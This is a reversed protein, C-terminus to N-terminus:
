ADDPRPTLVAHMTWTTTGRRVDLEIVAGTSRARVAMILNAMSLVAKGDIGLVQDGVDLGAVSAPSDGFVKDIVAGGPIQLAGAVSAPLDHGLVGLWAPVVHGTAMLQVAVQRAWDVPTVYEGGKDAGSLVGVVAGDRDLVPSGAVAAPGDTAIQLLGDLGTFSRDLGAILGHAVSADTPAYGIVPDGVKLNLATGLPAPTYGGGDLKLVALRSGADTAVVHAAVPHAAGVVASFSKATGVVDTTTLVMGDSRFIVGALTHTAGKQDKATIAVCSPRLVGVTASVSSASASALTVAPAMVDQELAPVPVKRTRLHGTAVTTGTALVAGVVGALLAVAWMRNAAGRGVGRLHSVESPHRWLRDDPPLLPGSSRDDDLEDDPDM